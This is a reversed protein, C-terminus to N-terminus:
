NVRNRQQTKNTYQLLEKASGLPQATRSTHRRGSGQQSQPNSDRRPVYIDRNHTNHTTLYLDTGLASREELGTRGLTTHRLTITFGLYHFPGLGSPATACYFFHNKGTKQNIVVYIPQIEYDSRM